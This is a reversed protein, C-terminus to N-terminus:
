TTATDSWRATANTALKKKLSCRPTKFSLYDAPYRCPLAPGRSRSEVEPSEVQPRWQLYAWCPRTSIPHRGVLVLGRHKTGISRQSADYWIFLEYSVSVLRLCSRFPSRGHSPLRRLHDTLWCLITAPCRRALVQWTVFLFRMRPRRSWALTSSLAFGFRFRPPPLHPAQAPITCARIQPSRHPTGTLLAQGFPPVFSAVRNTSVSTLLPRLLFEGVGVAVRLVLRRTTSFLWPLVM